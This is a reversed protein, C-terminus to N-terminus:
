RRPTGGEGMMGPMHRGGRWESRRAQMLQEFRQAGLIKRVSLYYRFREEALTTRVKDIRKFQAFAQKENLPESDMSDELALREKELMARMDIMRQRNTRYLVDMKEKEQPTLNIKAAMDPMRWWKGAFSEQALAQGASLLVALLVIVFLRTNAM